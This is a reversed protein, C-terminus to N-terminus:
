ALSINGHWSKFNKSWKQSLYVEFENTSWKKGNNEIFECLNM